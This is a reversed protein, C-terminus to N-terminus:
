LPSRLVIRRREVPVRTMVSDVRAAGECRSDYASRDVTELNRRSPERCEPDRSGEAEGQKSNRVGVRTTKENAFGIHGDRPDAVPNRM